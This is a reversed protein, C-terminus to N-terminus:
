HQHEHRLEMNNPSSAAGSAYTQPSAAFKDRCNQSCFYYVRGDHIATRASATEITMGCVPDVAKAPAAPGAGVTLPMAEPTEGSRRHGHGHGMVHAGCGFRMMVFFFAGWILFYILTQM